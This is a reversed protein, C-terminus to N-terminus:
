HVIEVDACLRAMGDLMVALDSVCNFIRGAATGPNEVTLTLMSSM